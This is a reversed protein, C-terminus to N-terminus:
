KLGAQISRLILTHSVIFPLNLSSKFSNLIAGPM